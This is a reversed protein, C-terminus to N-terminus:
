AQGDPRQADLPFGRGQARRLGTGPLKGRMALVAVFAPILVLGGVAIWNYADTTWAPVSIQRENVLYMLSFGVVNCVIAWVVLSTVVWGISAIIRRGLGPM